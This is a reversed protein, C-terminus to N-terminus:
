SRSSGASGKRWPGAITPSSCRGCPGPSGDPKALASRVAEIAKQTIREEDNAPETCSPLWAGAALLALAVSWLTHKM